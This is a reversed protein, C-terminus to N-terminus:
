KKQKEPTQFSSHDSAKGTIKKFTEVIAPGIKPIEREINQEASKLGRWIDEVTVGKGRDIKPAGASDSAGAVPSLVLILMGLVAATTRM